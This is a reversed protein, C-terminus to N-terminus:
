GSNKMMWSFKVESNGCNKMPISGSFLGSMELFIANTRSFFWCSLELLAWFKESSSLLCFIRRCRCRMLDWGCRMDWAERTHPFHISLRQDSECQRRRRWELKMLCRVCKKSRFKVCCFFTNKIHEWSVKWCYLFPWHPQKTTTKEPSPLRNQFKLLWRGVDLLDCIKREDWEANLVRNHAKECM